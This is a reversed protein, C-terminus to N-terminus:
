AAVHKSLEDYAFNIERMKKEAEIKFEDGLHQVKDPHYKKTLSRYAKKIEQENASNSVGLTAFHKDNTAKSSIDGYQAEFAMKIRQHDFASINLLVAIKDILLTEKEHLSHDAYAVNYLMNLLMLQAEYGFHVKFEETLSQINESSKKATQITDNVWQIKPGTFRLQQIFFQRIMQTEVESVQGDAKALHIMMHVMLEVFRKHDATRSNLSSNITRNRGIRKIVTYAIGGMIIIPFLQVILVLVVGFLGLIFKLGGFM